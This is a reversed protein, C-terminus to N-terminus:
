SCWFSIDKFVSKGFRFVFCVFSLCVIFGIYRVVILLNRENVRM